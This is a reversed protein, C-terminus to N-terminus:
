LEPTYISERVFTDPQSLKIKKSKVIVGSESKEGVTETLKDLM